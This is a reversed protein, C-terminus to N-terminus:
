QGGRHFPCNRSGYGMGLPVCRQALPSSGPGGWSLGECSYQMAWSASFVEHCFGGSLMQLEWVNLVSLPKVFVFCFSSGPHDAIAGKLTTRRLYSYFCVSYVSLTPHSLIKVNKGLAEGDRQRSDTILAIM